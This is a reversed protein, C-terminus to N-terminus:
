KLQEVASEPTEKDKEEVVNEDPLTISADIIDHFPHHLKKYRYVFAKITEELFVVDKIYEDNLKVAQLGYNNIVSIIAEFADASIEDCYDRRVAEIHEVSEQINHPFNEPIKKPFDVINETM